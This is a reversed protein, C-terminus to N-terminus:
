YMSYKELCTIYFLERLLTVKFTVEPWEILWVHNGLLRGSYSNRDQVTESTTEL